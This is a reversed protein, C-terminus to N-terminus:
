IFLFTYVSLYSHYLHPFVQIVLNLCIHLPILLCVSTSVFLCRYGTLNSHIYVPMMVLHLVNICKITKLDHQVREMLIFRLQVNHTNTRTM